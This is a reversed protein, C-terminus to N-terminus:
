SLHSDLPKDLSVIALTFPVYQNLLIHIVVWARNKMYQWIPSNLLPSAFYILFKQMYKKYVKVGKWIWACTENSARRWVNTQVTSLTLTLKQETWASYEFSKLISYRSFNLIGTKKLDFSIEFITKDSLGGSECWQQYIIKVIFKQQLVDCIPRIRWRWVWTYFM